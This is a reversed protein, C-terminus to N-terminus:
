RAAAGTPPGRSTVSFCLLRRAPAPHDGPRRRPAPPHHLAPVALLMRLPAALRVAVASLVRFVAREGHALWLGCLVAALLHATAMSPTHLAPETGHTTHALHAAHAMPAMATGGLGDMGATGGGSGPVGRAAPALSQAAAFTEHLVVQVAVVGGVIVASGRQRGALGWGAAGVVAGGGAVAWWPVPTGSMVGHGVAALLACVAAFVGARLARCWGGVTM